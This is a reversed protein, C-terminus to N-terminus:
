DADYSWEEIITVDKIMHTRVTKRPVQLVATEKTNHVREIRLPRTHSAMDLIHKHADEITDVEQVWGNEYFVLFYTWQQM